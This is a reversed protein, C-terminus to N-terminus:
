NMDAWNAGRSGDVKLPVRLEAAGEMAERVLDAAADAEEPPAELILEDHVQLIMRARRGEAALRAAITVMARKILDAATGQIPTNVAIREGAAKVNNDTNVLERVYRKRGLLTSVWGRQRAEALTRDLWSRVGPYRLFYADIIGQAEGHPLGLQQALGHASMGYVIGFNVAKARRRPEEGDGGFLERATRSHVDEGRVFAETLAPDGSFHALIRLEVQSYDAGVLTWGPEPVFARRIRRGEATRIPINQLNPDSSSLRGTEAVTQNYSTHIRGTVPHIMRPLADVYTGKLKALSRYELIKGPLPHRGALESLVGVDTSWGTKTRRGRPLNLRGFLVEQLQKPSDINFPGGGAAHVEAELRALEAGMEASLAGLVGADVRVGTDELGALVSVLPLEVEDYLASLGEEERLRPRLIAALRLAADADECSYTTAREVPVRDFTVQEKGKGTTEAYTIIQHDLFERALHALGHSPRSPDLLYSAVMTDVIPGRVEAGARRLVRLDFKLNQGIKTKGPDGFFPRLAGLVEALPLQPPAFLSGEGAGTHGVPLYWAEGPAAAISIGVLRDGIPDLGTTETDIAFEPVERLRAVVAALGAADMVGRYRDYSLSKKPPAPALDRLLRHFELEEFVPRLREPDPPVLRMREWDAALPVDIRVTALERSLRALDAQAKLNKLVRASLLRRDPIKAQLEAEPTELLADLSGAARILASATKEGVGEVGPINDTADGALGLVDPVREPPVGFRAEVEARGSARDKMTDLLTVRDTVIQMLDKDGTVVVVDLGREAGAKALTAIVDDAEFGPREAVAIGFAETVTRIWPFQAALAEPTEARNAKYAPYREERFTPGPPDLAVALYEPAHERVVKMLMTIYGFVANTPLGRSTSLPQVAHFARHVYSSGDLLFLRERRPRM